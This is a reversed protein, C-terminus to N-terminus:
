PEAGRIQEIGHRASLSARRQTLFVDSFDKEPVREVVAHDQAHRLVVQVQGRLLAFTVLEAEELTLAVTVHDVPAGSDADGAVLVAVNQLLTVTTRDAEGARSFTGLLDVRDGERLAGGLSSSVDVPLTLARLGNPVRDALPKRRVAASRLDRWLLPQGAVITASTARGVAREAEAEPIADPHVFGSPIARVGVDARTLRAGPELDRLAVLVGTREGGRAERRLAATYAFLAGSTLLGLAGAVLLKKKM